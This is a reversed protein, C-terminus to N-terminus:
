LIVSKKAPVIKEGRWEFCWRKGTVRDELCTMWGGGLKKTPRKTLKRITNPPDFLFYKDKGRRGWGRGSRIIAPIKPKPICVISDNERTRIESKDMRWMPEFEGTFFILAPMLACLHEGEVWVIDDKM